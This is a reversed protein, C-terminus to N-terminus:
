EPLVKGPVLMEGKKDKCPGGDVPCLVRGELKKALDHLAENPTRGYGDPPTSTPPKVGSGKKKKRVGANPLFCIWGQAGPWRRIVCQSGLNTQIEELTMRRAAEKLKKALLKREAVKKAM